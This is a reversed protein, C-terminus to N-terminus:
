KKGPIPLFPPTEECADVQVLGTLGESADFKQKCFSANAPPPQCTQLKLTHQPFLSSASGGQLDQCWSHLPVEQQQPM